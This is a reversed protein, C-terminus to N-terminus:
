RWNEAHRAAITKSITALIEEVEDAVNWDESWEASRRDVERTWGAGLHLELRRWHVGAVAEALSRAEALRDVKAPAATAVFALVIPFFTSESTNRRQIPFTSSWNAVDDRKANRAIKESESRRLSRVADDVLARFARVM